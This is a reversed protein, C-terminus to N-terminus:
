FKFEVTASVRGEWKHNATMETVPEEFVQIKIGSVILGNRAEFSGLEEELLGAIEAELRKKAKGLEDVTM